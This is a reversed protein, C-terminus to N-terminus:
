CLYAPTYQVTSQLEGLNYTIKVAGWNGSTFPVVKFLRWVWPLPM